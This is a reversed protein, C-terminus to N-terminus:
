LTRGNLIEKKLANFEDDDLDESVKMLRELRDLVNDLEPVEDERKVEVTPKIVDDIGLIECWKDILGGSALQRELQRLNSQWVENDRDALVEGLARNSGSGNLGLNELFSGLAARRLADYYQWNQLASDPPNASSLLELDIWEPLTVYSSDSQGIANLTHIVENWEEPARQLSDNPKAVYLGRSRVRADLYVKLDIEAATYPLALPRLMSNGAFNGPIDRDSLYHFCEERSFEVQYGDATQQYLQIWDLGSNDKVFRNITFSPIPTLLNRVGFTSNPDEYTICEYIAHGYTTILDWTQAAHSGWNDSLLAQELLAAAAAHEDSDGSPLVQWKLNEIHGRMTRLIPSVVPDSYRLSAYLGPSNLYGLTRSVGMASPNSDFAPFTWTTQAVSRTKSAM